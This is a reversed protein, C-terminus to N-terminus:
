LQQHGEDKCLLLFCPNGMVCGVSSAALSEGWAIFCRWCITPVKMRIGPSDIWCHERGEADYRCFLFLSGLSGFFLSLVEKGM